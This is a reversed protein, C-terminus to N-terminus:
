LFYKCRIVVLGRGSCVEAESSSSPCLMQMYTFGNLLRLWAIHTVVPAYRSAFYLEEPKYLGCAVKFFSEDSVETANPALYLIYM